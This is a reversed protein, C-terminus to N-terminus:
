LLIYRLIGFNHKTPNVFPCKMNSSNVLTDIKHLYFFTLIILEFLRFRTGTNMELDLENLNM